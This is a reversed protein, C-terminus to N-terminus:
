TQLKLLEFTSTKKKLTKNSNKINFLYPYGGNCMYSLM